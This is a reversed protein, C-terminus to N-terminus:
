KQLVEPNVINGPTKGTLADVLNEAAMVAMKTRTGTTASGVHPLLIVNKLKLLEPEVEPENEYVDLGAGAIIGEKLAKALAKEDVVPGRSTNILIASSKMMNLEEWGILHKTKGTLPVHLSIFDSERILTKFDVKQAHIEQELERNPMEDHYLVRIRFGTSKKAVASGIRGAGIIGLTRESIDAGLMLMPAWGSFKGERLYSDCEAVRRAVSFILAWALDSTADTLVGPTNTVIIGKETAARVDINDYGVAYNAIVKLRDAAEIVDRDVPDTLLTLIGDRGKVQQILESRTIVRDHPNIDVRKCSSLVIDLGPQPIRRTVYVNFDGKKM